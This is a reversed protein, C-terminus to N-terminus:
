EAAPRPQATVRGRRAPPDAPPTETTGESGSQSGSDAESGSEGDESGDGGTEADPDLADDEGDGDDEVADPVVAEGEPTHVVPPPLTASASETRLEIPGVAVAGLPPTAARQVPDGPTVGQQTLITGPEQSTLAIANGAGAPKAEDLAGVSRLHGIEEETLDAEGPGVHRGSVLYTRQLVHKTTDAM